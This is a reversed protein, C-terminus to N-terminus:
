IQLNGVLGRGLDYRKPFPENGSWVRLSTIRYVVFDKRFCVNVNNSNIEKLVSRCGPNLILIKACFFRPFRKWIHM